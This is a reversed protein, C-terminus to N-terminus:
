AQENIKEHLEQEANLYIMGTITSIENFLAINTTHWLDESLYSRMYEYLGNYICNKRSRVKYRIIQKVNNM